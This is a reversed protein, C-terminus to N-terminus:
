MLDSVDVMGFWTWRGGGPGPRAPSPEVLVILLLLLSRHCAQCGLGRGLLWRCFSWGSGCSGRSSRASGPGPGGAWLSRAGRHRLVERVRAWGWPCPQTFRPRTLAAVRSMVLGLLFDEPGLVQKKMTYAPLPGAKTM